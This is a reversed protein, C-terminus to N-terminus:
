NEQRDCNVRQLNNIWLRDLEDVPYPTSKGKRLSQYFKEMTFTISMYRNIIKQALSKTLKSTTHEKLKEKWNKKGHLTTIISYTFHAMTSYRDYNKHKNFFDLEADSLTFESSLVLGFDTFYLRNGDTLINEFNADFHLMGRANMFSTVALLNEEVMELSQENGLSLQQVLWTKAIQPIYEVFLLISAPPKQLAELRSRIAQSGGWFIVAKDIKKKNEESIPPSKNPLLRWHYMIPFNPCEGSIVWDTTIIHAQLERWASFGASGIGYRYYTPLKFL